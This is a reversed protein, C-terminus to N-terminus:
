HISRATELWETGNSILTLTSYQTPTWDASLRIDGGGSLAGNNLIEGANAGVWEIILVQGERTSQTLVITRNAAVANDSDLRIYSQGTNGSEAVVQNDATIHIVSAPPTLRVNKAVDLNGVVTTTAGANGVNVSTATTAGINLAGASAADLGNGATADLTTFHGAAPTTGGIPTSDIAVANLAGLNSVAFVPPDFSDDGGAHLGNLIGLGGDHAVYFTPYGTSEELLFGGKTHGVDAQSILYGQTTANGTTGDVTFYGGNSDGVRLGTATIRAREVGDASFGLVDDAPQFIGTDHDADGFILGPLANTGAALNTQGSSVTLTTFKGTSPTTAGITTANIGATSLITGSENPLTLTRDATPEAVTLLTQFSNVTAGEFLVGGQADSSDFVAQGATFTNSALTDSYSLGVTVAATESGSGSVTVGTGAAITAVYNGTTDTGLAVSDAAVSTAAAPAAWSLNGAGDTKLFENVGSGDGVPLIYNVPGGMADAPTFTVYKGATNSYMKIIGRNSGAVDGFTANGIVGLTGNIATNGSSGTVNFKNTNVAIDGTIATDGEYDVTFLPSGGNNEIALLIQDATTGTPEILVAANNASADGNHIFKAQGDAFLQGDITATSSTELTTFKGTSPTTAGIAAANIGTSTITVQESNGVSFGIVNSSPNYIGTDADGTFAISPALATGPSEVTTQGTVAFAGSAGTVTVTGTAGISADGGMTTATPTGSNGVLIQGTSLSALKSYAIAAGVGIDANIVSACGLNGNAAISSAFQNTCGSPTAALATATDANGTIAGTIGGTVNLTGAIVTDGEYDVTFLESIGGSTKIALLKENTQAATSPQILVSASGSTTDTGGDGPNKTFLAQGATSLTGAVVTNGSTGTVTFKNTNIAVDGTVGLTGAVATNGNSATVNFKNTNVAVDGDLTTAGTAHLTTFTGAAATSGGIVAGDLSSVVPAAWSLTGDSGNTTLVQNASGVTGPLTFTINSAVSDPAKLDVYHTGANDYLALGAKAGGSGKIGVLGDLFALLPDNAGSVNFTWAFDASGAGFTSTGIETTDLNLTIIDGSRATDIGNTGGALTITSGNASGGADATLATIGSGGVGCTVVGAVTSLSGCTTYSSKSLTVTGALNVAGAAYLDGAKNVTLLDTSGDKVALFKGGTVAGSGPQILFAANASTTDAPAKSVIVQGSYTNSGSWSLSSATNLNIQGGSSTLGTGALADPVTSAVGSCTLATTATTATTASTATNAHLAYVGSEYESRPTMEADSGVAIGLCLHDAATVAAQHTTDLTTLDLTTNYVGSSFSVTKSFTAVPATDDCTAYLNFVMATDSTLPNGSTADVIYGQVPLVSSASHLPLSALSLVGLLTVSLLPHRKLKM